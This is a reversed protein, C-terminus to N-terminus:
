QPTEALSEEIAKKLDAANAEGSGIRFLRVKGQRDIVVAHPIGSVFYHQQLDRDTVYAIPHRLEHHKVFHEMAAREAEPELEAERKPRSAEEDWGYKYYNTVGIIALGKDAYEDHWERLHPFTAICPGCWVAFFDLLVVKGKLADATLPEGNVWGDVNEPFVAPSGVLALMKRTNEIQQRLRSISPGFSVLLENDSPAAEEAEEGDEAKEGDTAEEADVRENGFNEIRDLLASAEDPNTRALSMARNMHEMAFRQTLPMSEPLAKAKEFLFDLLETTAHSPDGDEISSELQVRGKLAAAVRLIADADDPNEALATNAEQVQNDLLSKAEEVRDAKALQVARLAEVISKLEGKQGESSEAQKAYEDLVAFARDPGGIQAAFDALMGLTQAFNEDSLSGKDASKLQLDIFSKLHEFAQENKGVRRLHSAAIYHLFHLNEAEPHKALGENLQASAEDFKRQAFLSQIDKSFQQPDFAEPEDAEPEENAAGAAAEEQAERVEQSPAVLPLWVLWFAAVLIFSAKM